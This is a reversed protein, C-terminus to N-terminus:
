SNFSRRRGKISCVKFKISLSLKFIIAQRNTTMCNHSEKCNNNKEKNVCAILCIHNAFSWAAVVTWKWRSAQGVFFGRAFTVIYRPNCSKEKNWGSNINIFAIEAKSFNPICSISNMCGSSKPIWMFCEDIFSFWYKWDLVNILFVLLM